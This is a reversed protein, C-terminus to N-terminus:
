GSRTKGFVIPSARGLIQRKTESRWPDLCGVFFANGKLHLAAFLAGLLAGASIDGNEVLNSSARKNPRDLRCAIQARAVAAANRTAGTAGGRACPAACLKRQDGVLVERGHKRIFGTLQQNCSRGRLCAGGLFLSRCSQEKNGKAYQRKNVGFLNYNDVTQKVAGRTPTLEIQPKRHAV